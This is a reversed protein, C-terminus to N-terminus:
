KSSENRIKSGRVMGYLVVQSHGSYDGSICMAGNARRWVSKVIDFHIDCRDIRLQVDELDNETEAYDYRELIVSLKDHVGSGPISVVVVYAPDKGLSKVIHIYEIGNPRKGDWLTNEIRRIEKEDCCDIEVSEILWFSAAQYLVYFICSLELVRILLQMLRKSQMVM